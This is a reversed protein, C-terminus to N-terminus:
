LQTLLTRPHSENCRGDVLLISALGLMVTYYTFLSVNDDLTGILALQSSLFFALRVTFRRPSTSTSLVLLLLPLTLFGKGPAQM